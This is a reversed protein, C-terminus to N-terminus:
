APRHLARLLVVVWVSAPLSAYQGSESSFKSRQSVALEPPPKVWAQQQLPNSFPDNTHPYLSLDGAVVRGVVVLATVVVVLM